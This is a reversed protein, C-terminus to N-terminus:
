YFEFESKVAYHDSLRLGDVPEKLFALGRIKHVFNLLHSNFWFGDIANELNSSDGTFTRDPFFPFYGKQYLGNQEFSKPSSNFDGMIVHQQDIFRNILFVIQEKRISSDVDRYELHTNIYWTHNIKLAVYARQLLSPPLLGHENQAAPHKGLILLHEDYQGWAPHTYQIESSQIPYNKTALYNKIFDIQSEGSLPNTCVEQFSIVDPSQKAIEDLILPLRQQWQDLMCHLNMTVMQWHQAAKLPLSIMNLAISFLLLNAAINM